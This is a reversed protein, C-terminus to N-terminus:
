IRVFFPSCCTCWFCHVFGCDFCISHTCNYDQESQSNVWVRMKGDVSGTAALNLSKAFAIAEISDEHGTCTGVVKGNDINVVKGIGEADGTFTLRSSPHQRLATIPAAHLRKVHHVPEGSKPNWVFLDGDEGGTVINQGDSTFAGTAVTGLHGSMVTMCQGTLANWMWCTHDSSGACIVYGKPHWSCWLLESAPGDLTQILKGSPVEWIKISGDMSCTAVYKGDYSFSTSIISDSHGTFTAFTDGSNIDWLYARESSEAGDGSCIYRGFSSLCYVSDLM